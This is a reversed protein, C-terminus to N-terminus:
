GVVIWDLLIIGWAEDDAPFSPYWDLDRPHCDVTLNKIKTKTYKREAAMTALPTPEGRGTPLFKSGGEIKKRGPDGSVSDGM